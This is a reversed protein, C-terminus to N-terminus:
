CELSLLKLYGRQIPKRLQELESDLRNARAANGTATEFWASRTVGIVTAAAEVPAPPTGAAIDEMLVEM